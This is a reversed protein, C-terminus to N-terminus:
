ESAIRGTQPIGGSAKAYDGFGETTSVASAAGTELRVAEKYLLALALALWLFAAGSLVRQLLGAVPQLSDVLPVLPMPLNVAIIVMGLIGAIKLRTRGRAMGRLILMGGLLPLISVVSVINHLADDTLGKPVTDLTDPFVGLLFTGAAHIALLLALRKARATFSRRRSLGYAAAGMLVGYVVYGATLVPAFPMGPAGMQSVTDSVPNYDPTMQGVFVITSIMM